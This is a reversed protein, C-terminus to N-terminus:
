RPTLMPLLTDAQEVYGVACPPLVWFPTFSLPSLLLAHCCRRCTSVRAPGLARPRRSERHRRLTARTPPAGNYSIEGEIIGWTKRLSLVDLLTTKGCGSPGLICLMQGPLLFGSVGGGGSGPTGGDAPSGLLRVVQGRRKGPLVFGLKSFTLLNAAAPNSAASCALAFESPPPAEIDM